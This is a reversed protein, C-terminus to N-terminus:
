PVHMGVVAHAELRADAFKLRVIRRIDQAEAKDTRVTSLHPQLLRCLGFKVSGSSEQANLAQRAVDGFALRQLLVLVQQNRLEVMADFIHECSHRDDGRARLLRAVRHRVKDGGEVASNFRHRGRMFQQAVAAPVTYGKGLEDLALECGVGRALLVCISPGSTM